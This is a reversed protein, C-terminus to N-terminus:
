ERNEEHSRWVSKINQVIFKGGSVDLNIGTMYAADDSALFGVARVVDNTTGIRHLAIADIMNTKDKAIAPKTMETEIVGPSYGNVRIGYPAYEAAMTKTLSCLAAKSAAYIGSGSSPINVAFSLTNIIVGNKKSNIIKKVIENSLMLTSIVNTAFINKIEEEIADILKCYYIIGANNILIDINGNMSDIQKIIGKYDNIDGTIGRINNNSYDISKRAVAYVTAGEEAFYECLARGIGRSTGTILVEKGKFKNM